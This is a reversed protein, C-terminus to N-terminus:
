QLELSPIKEFETFELTYNNNQHNSPYLLIAKSSNWYHNYVYMQRLDNTSPESNDINKM